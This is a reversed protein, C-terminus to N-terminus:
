KSWFTMNKKGTLYGYKDIKDSSLASIKVVERNFNHQLKAKRIKYDITM